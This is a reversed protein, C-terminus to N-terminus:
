SSEREALTKRIRGIDSFQASIYQLADEHRFFTQVWNGTREALPVDQRMAAEYMEIVRIDSLVTTPKFVFGPCPSGDDNLRYPKLLQRAFAIHEHVLVWRLKGREIARVLERHTISPEPGVKGSGYWATILGLFLDCSDVAHLCNQFNSKTPDVPMTGKHSMWVRYGFGSLVGFVQELLDEIGYVSSSVMIVPMPEGAASM